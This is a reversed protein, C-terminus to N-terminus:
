PAQYLSLVEGSKSFDGLIKMKSLNWLVAAIECETADTFPLAIADTRIIITWTCGGSNLPDKMWNEGSALRLVTTQESGDWTLSGAQYPLNDGGSGVIPTKSVQTERVIRLGRQNNCEACELTVRLLIRALNSIQLLNLRGGSIPKTSFILLSTEMPAEFQSPYIAVM